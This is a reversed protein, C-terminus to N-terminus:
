KSLAKRLDYKLEQEETLHVLQSHFNSGLTPTVSSNMERIFDDAKESKVIFQKGFTSTAM